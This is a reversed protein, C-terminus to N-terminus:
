CSFAYRCCFLPMAAHRRADRLAADFFHRRLRCLTIHRCRLRLLTHSAHRISFRLLFRLSMAYYSLSRAAAARRFLMPLM